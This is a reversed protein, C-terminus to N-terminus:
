VGGKGDEAKFVPYKGATFDLLGRENKKINGIYIKKMVEVRYLLEDLNGLNVTIRSDIMLCINLLDTVDIYTLMPYIKFEDSSDSAKIVSVIEFARTIKDKNGMYLEQGLEYKTIDLGRIFPIEYENDKVTDMVYGYRDILLTTGFYWVLFEPVREEIDIKITSPIIFRVEAEKVWHCNRIIRSEADSYRFRLFSLLDYGMHIFGNIGIDIGSSRIIINENSKINGYVEINKINFVPSLMFLTIVVASLVLIMFFKVSKSIGKNVSEYEKGEVPM